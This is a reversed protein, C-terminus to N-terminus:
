ITFYFWHLLLFITRRKYDSQCGQFNNQTSKTFSGLPKPEVLTLWKLISSLWKGGLPLPTAPSSTLISSLRWSSYLSYNYGNNQFDATSITIVHKGMCLLSHFQKFRLEQNEFWHSYNREKSELTEVHVLQLPGFMIISEGFDLCIPRVM